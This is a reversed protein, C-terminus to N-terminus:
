ARRASAAARESGSPGRSWEAASVPAAPLRVEVTTGTGPASVITLRGGHRETLAKTLPLGLGTGDQRRTMASEIQSFPQLAIEIESASMGVGSDGVSLVVENGENRAAVAVRGGKPTFKVANSLLNLVIQRLRTHDGWIPAVGTCDAVELEVGSSGARDAVLRACGTVLADTAVSGYRLGLQGAEVKALDLIDNIVELLHRASTSIDRAYEAYRPQLAGFFGGEMLESFGIIANLPTRLEHSM